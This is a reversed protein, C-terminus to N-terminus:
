IIKFICVDVIAYDSQIDVIDFPEKITMRRMKFSPMRGSFEYLLEIQKECQSIKQFNHKFLNFQNMSDDNFNHSLNAIMDQLRDETQNLFLNLENHQNVFKEYDQLHGIHIGLLDMLKQLWLTGNKLSGVSAKLEEAAPHNNEILRDAFNIIYSVKSKKHNLTMEVNHKHQILESSKLKKPQSWDRNLEVDEMEYLYKLEEQILKNFEILVDMNHQAESLSNCVSNFLSFLEDLKTNLECTEPHDMKLIEIKEMEPQFKRIESSLKRLKELETESKNIDAKYQILNIQSQRYRIWKFAEQILDFLQTEITQQQRTSSSLTNTSSSKSFSANKNNSISISSTSSATSYSSTPSTNNPNILSSSDPSEM